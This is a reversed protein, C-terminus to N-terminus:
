RLADYQTQILTSLQKACKIRQTETSNAFGLVIGHKLPKNLYYKSLADGGLLAAQMQQVLMMDDIGPAEVLVHMGASHGIRQAPKPLYRSLLGSFHMWKAKYLRRMRRLHRVFHGEQIFDAVVAQNVPCSEGSLHSKILVCHQVVKKPVVLYGLRLSPLLVKSFSGVYLVPTSAAMGQLAAVPKQSFAYESDYDDEVIWSGSASAWDLLKLRDAAPMIGGMPYQHTPTTYLISGKRGQKILRDVDMVNHRLPVARLKIGQSLFAHRAGKYGPNEVLAIDGADLALRACIFLAEQAGNTIIIQNADCRLGRSVNLYQALAERLPGYGQYGQYGSLVARDYHRRYISLWLAYPFASVDPVGLQFLYPNPECRANAINLAQAFRSLKPLPMAKLWDGSDLTTTHSPLCESVFVGKGVTSTLFGEAKLQEIVATITNRSVSLQDALNRSSIVRKGPALRGTCIWEVFQQYIQKQLPLQRDIVMMAYDSISM